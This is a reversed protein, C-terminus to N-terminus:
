VYRRIDSVSFHLRRQWYQMGASPMSRVGRSCSRDACSIERSTRAEPGACRLHATAISSIRRAGVYSALLELLKVAQSFAYRDSSEQM